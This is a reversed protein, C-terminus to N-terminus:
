PDVAQRRLAACGSRTGIPLLAEIDDASLTEVKVHGTYPLVIHRVTDTDELVKITLSASIAKGRAEGLVKKPDKLLAARYKADVVAKHIVKSVAVEDKSIEAKRQVM